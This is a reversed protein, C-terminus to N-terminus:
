VSCAVVFPPRLCQNSLELHLKDVGCRRYLDLYITGSSISVLLM